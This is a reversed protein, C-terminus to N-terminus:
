ITRQQWGGMSAHNLLFSFRLLEENKEKDGATFSPVFASTTQRFVRFTFCCEDVEVFHEVYISRALLFFDSM